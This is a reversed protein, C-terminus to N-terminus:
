DDWDKDSLYDLAASQCSPSKACAWRAAENLKAERSHGYDHAHWQYGVYVALMISIPYRWAFFARGIRPWKEWSLFITMVVVWIVLLSLGVRWGRSISDGLLRNAEDGATLATGWVAVYRIVIDFLEEASGSVPKDSIGM